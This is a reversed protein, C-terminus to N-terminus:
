ISAWRCIGHFEGVLTRIWIKDALYCSQDGNNTANGDICDGIDKWKITEINASKGVSQKRGDV